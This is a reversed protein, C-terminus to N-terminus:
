AGRGNLYAGYIVRKVPESCSFKYRRDLSSGLRDIIQRKNYEGIAGLSVEIQNSWTRGSDDSWSVLGIPDSGQGSVLGVGSECEIEFENHPIEQEAHIAPFIHSSIFTEGDETYKTPDIKYLKGSSYDGTMEKNGIRMHWAARWRGLLYSDREHWLGTSFDYKWTVGADPFTLVYFRSDELSYTWGEADSPDAMESISSEVQANSIRQIQSGSLRYVVRDDGLFLIANDDKAVSMKALLGREVTGGSIRTFPFDAAGSNYWPEIVSTGMLYLTSSEVFVRIVDDPNSEASAFDLGDVATFDLLSTIWFKQTNPENFVGYGDIYDVSGAGAFDVDTIEALTATAVDYIYLTAGDCICVQLGNGAITVPGSSTNLTGLLTDAGSSSISYLSDGYVAYGVGKFEKMGRCGSTDLTNLLTLGASGVLQKVAKSGPDLLPVFNITRQSNAATSRSQGQQSFLEVRM